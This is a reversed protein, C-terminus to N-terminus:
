FCSRAFVAAYTSRNCPVEHKLDQYGVTTELFSQGDIRLAIVGGPVQSQHLTHEVILKLQEQLAGNSFWDSYLFM